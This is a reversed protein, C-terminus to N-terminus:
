DDVFIDVARKAPFWPIPKGHEVQYAAAYSARAKIPHIKPNNFYNFRSEKRVNYLSMNKYKEIYKELEEKYNPVTTGGIYNVRYKKQESVSAYILIDHSSGQMFSIEKESIDRVEIDAMTYYYDGIKSLKIGNDKLLKKKSLTDQEAGLIIEREAPAIYNLTYKKLGKILNRRDVGYKRVLYQATGEDVYNLEKDFLIINM